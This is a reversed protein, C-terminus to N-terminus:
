GNPPFQYETLDLPDYVSGHCTCFMAEWVDNGRNLAEKSEKYGPVCCFHACFSCFAIIGQDIFSGGIFEEAAEVAKRQDDDLKEPDIRIAIGTIINNDFQGESRWKFPAGKGPGDFDKINLPRDLKNKYWVEIGQAEALHIKDPNQFYYFKNDDTFGPKLGPAEDHSCYKYWELISETKEPAFSPDGTVNGDADVKVPIIPLGKPAPGGVIKAGFYPFRPIRIGATTSLPFALGLGSAGVAGFAATGVARRVFTRRDIGKRPPKQFPDQASEEVM